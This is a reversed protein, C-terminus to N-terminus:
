KKVLIGSETADRAADKLKMNLFVSLLMERRRLSELLDRDQQLEVAKMAVRQRDINAESEYLNAYFSPNQFLKKTMVEMQAFYSPNTGILAKADASSLGLQMLVAQMNTASASGAKAKEAVLAGFSNSSVSRAANIM